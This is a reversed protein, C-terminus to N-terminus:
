QIVGRIGITPLIPLGPQRVRTSYDYAYNWGESNRAYYVNIVDIFVSGEIPGLKYDRDIRVDLQHYVPLRTRGDPEVSHDNEDADFVVNSGDANARNDSVPRGSAFLFRTGFRWGGTKYSLALNLVHPQDYSFLSKPGGDLFRESRSLTYSVWGFLGKEVRRRLMFEWGYARGRGDDDLFAQSVSGDENLEVNTAERSLQWMENFFLSSDIELRFPLQIETGLSSQWARNPALAPNGFSRALQFPLPAQSFLGTAAKLTVNDTLRYRLVGRPEATWTKVDGYSYYEARMALSIEVPDPRFVQEIYPALTLEHLYEYVDLTNNSATPAPIAPLDGLAPATGILDTLFVSEEFGITTQSFGGPQIVAQVRQGIRLSETRLDLSPDGTSASGFGIGSPGVTGSWSLLLHRSAEYNVEGILQDFEYSLGSDSTGRTSGTGTDSTTELADRSGFFFLSASLKRTFQYDLRVQYDSYSLSIDDNILPMILEYYSRRYAATVVGRGEAFPVALVAGARLLDVEFEFYPGHLPPPATTLSVLGATYRGYAAPYGGPYFDLREVLRGPLIAPGAGLHYLLPVPYGDVLFGTNQFNAGRVLFFGLGFPSRAVGPLTAVVRMPEGFTGPIQTLEAGRLTVRAAAGPEPKDAAATAGYAVSDDAQAVGADPTAAAPAAAAVPTAESSAEPASAVTFRFGVRSSVPAGDRLAPQFRLRRAAELVAQDAAEGLSASRLEADRVAGEADIELVVEVGEAPAAVGDPLVLEVSETLVPPVLTPAPTFSTATSPKAPAAAPAAAPEDARAPEASVVLTALCWALPRWIGRAM